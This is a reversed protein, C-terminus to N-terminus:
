AVRRLERVVGVHSLTRNANEGRRVESVLGDETLALAKHRKGTAVYEKQIWAKTQGNRILHYPLFGSKDIVPALTALALAKLVTTKGAGNNGLLLNINPLHLPGVDSRGPYQLKLSASEFVRLHHIDIEQVYL